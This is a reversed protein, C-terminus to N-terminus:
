KKFLASDAVVYEPFLSCPLGDRDVCFCISNTSRLPCSLSLIVNNEIVAQAQIVPHNALATCTAERNLIQM